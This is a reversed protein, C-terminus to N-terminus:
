PPHRVVISTDLIRLFSGGVAGCVAVALSEGREYVVGFLKYTNIPKQVGPCGVRYAV